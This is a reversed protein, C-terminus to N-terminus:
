PKPALTLAKGWFEWYGLTYILNCMDSLAWPELTIGPIFGKGLYSLLQRTNVIPNGPMGLTVGKWIRSVGPVSLEAQDVNPGLGWQTTNKQPSVITGM